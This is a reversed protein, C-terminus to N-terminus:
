SDRPSPSTYLLVAPLGRDEPAIPTLMASAGDRRLLMPGTGRGKRTLGLEPQALLQLLDPMARTLRIEIVRGAMVRIEDIDALDLALPTGKVAAVAASLADKASQSDIGSGDPWTGERLRFIFSQGGDIVIWRDALAPIVRGNEDFAVLGEATAARVQQAAPPLRAGTEFPSGAGGIAVVSVPADNSGCSALLLAAALAM